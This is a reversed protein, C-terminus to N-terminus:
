GPDSPLLGHAEKMTLIRRVSEDIREESLTGEELANLINMASDELNEPGLLIDAGANVAMVALEGSSYGDLAGMKLADTIVVGDFGLTNRLLNTTLEYSITAPLSDVSPVTLHGTMVMDAGSRIGAIFPKLEEKTLQSIDKDVYSVGEHSDQLTSGHGPFHKLTSILGYERFGQVAASVLEAAMDFDDSYARSGIVTNEPNSWVDAVPAFDTNFGHRLMYESIIGANDRATQAGDDRYSYMDSIQQTGLKDMLRTIEGGEEDAAILLPIKSYSQTNTVMRMIQKSDRLNQTTYVIGGVPYESLGDRIGAGAKTVVNVDSLAEPYVIFMQYVKEKVTMSSLVAEVHPEDPSSSPKERASLTFDDDLSIVAVNEEDTRRMKYDMFILGAIFSYFVLCFLLKSLKSRTHM